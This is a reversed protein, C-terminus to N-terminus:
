SIPPGDFSGGMHILDDLHEIYELQSKKGMNLSVICAKKYWEKLTEEWYKIKRDNYESSKGDSHDHSLWHEELIWIHKNCLEMCYIHGLLTAQGHFSEVQLKKLMCTNWSINLCVHLFWHRKLSLHLPCRDLKSYCAEDVNPNWIDNAVM